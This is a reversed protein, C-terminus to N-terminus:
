RPQQQQQQSARKEYIVCLAEHVKEEVLAGVEQHPDSMLAWATTCAQDLLKDRPCQSTISNLIFSSSRGNGSPFGMTGSM